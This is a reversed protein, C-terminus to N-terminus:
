LLTMGAGVPLGSLVPIIYHLAPHSSSGAFWFLGIPVLVSATLIGPLRPEPNLDLHLGLATKNENDRQLRRQKKEYMPKFYGFYLLVGLINGM